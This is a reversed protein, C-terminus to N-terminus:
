IKLNCEIWLENGQRPLISNMCPEMKLINFLPDFLLKYEEATGGFPPGESNFHSAFLLGALKGQTTLLSASKKVYSERLIPDLACFFTQELILDYEGKHFFFDECVIKIGKLDGLKNSLIKCATPSIDLLTIDHFGMEYLAKAEHANGCGPILIRDSLGSYNRMYEVLPTSPFGIDWGTQGEEWRKDWFEKDFNM